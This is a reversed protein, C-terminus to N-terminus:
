MKVFRVKKHIGNGTIELFYIGPAVSSVPVAVRNKGAVTNVTLKQKREGHLDLLYISVDTSTETTFELNLTNTAPNPSAAIKVKDETAAAAVRVTDCFQQECGAAGRATLCVDYNGAAPFVHVPNASTNFATGDGFNWSYALTNTTASSFHIEGNTNVYTFSVTVNCTDPTVPMSVTIYDCYEAVCGAADTVKLCVDYTGSTSFTHVPAATGAATTGDGFSWNYTLPTKGGAINVNLEVSLSDSKRTYTYGANLNCVVPAAITISDSYNASCGKDDRINLTIWYGGPQSYVHVPNKVSDVTGDGFRWSYYVSGTLGTVTTNFRTTMSDITETFSTKLKCVDPPVSGTITVTDCVMTKCGYWDEVTLCVNYKGKQSYVHTPNALESINSGDGFNWTYFANGMYGRAVSTFVATTSDVASSYRVEIGCAEPDAVKLTDCYTATCGREDKVTMCVNYIGPKEYTHVLHIVSDLVTGDGYDWRCSVIKGNADKVDGIFDISMWDQWITYTPKLKCVVTYNVHVTDTYKATCGNKDTVTLTVHYTGANYYYHYPNSGKGAITSDGFDWSYTPTEAGNQKATFTIRPVNVSDQVATFSTSLNCSPKDAVETNLTVFGNRGGLADKAVSGGMVLGLGPVNRIFVINNVENVKGAMKEERIVAGTSANVLLYSPQQNTLKSDRTLLAVGLMNNEESLAMEYATTTGSHPYGSRWILDGTKGNVQVFVISDPYYISGIINGDSKEVADTFAGSKHSEVYQWIPPGVMGSLKAICPFKWYSNYKEGYVIAAKADTKSRLAGNNNGDTVLARGNSKHTRKSVGVVVAKKYNYPSSYVFISDSTVLVRKEKNLTQNGAFVIGTGGVWDDYNYSFGDLSWDDLHHYGGSQLIYFGSTTDPVIQHYDGDNKFGANHRWLESGSSDLLLGLNIGTSSSLSFTAVPPLTSTQGLVLVRESSDVALGSPMFYSTPTTLKKRWIFRQPTAYKELFVDTGEQKLVYYKDHFVQLDVTTSPYQYEKNAFIKRSIKGNQADELTVLNVHTNTRLLDTVPNALLGTVKGNMWFITGKGYYMENDTIRYNAQPFTDKPVPTDFIQKGDVGAIKKFRYQASDRQAGLLYVDGKDDITMSTASFYGSSGVGQDSIYGNWYVQGTKKNIKTLRTNIDDNIINNYWSVYLTDGLIQWNSLYFEGDYISGLKVAWKLEGTTDSMCNMYNEGFAYNYGDKQFGAFVLSSGTGIWVNSNDKRDKKVISWANSDDHSCYYAYDKDFWLPTEQGYGMLGTSFTRPAAVEGTVTSISYGSIPSAGGVRYYLILSDTGKMEHYLVGDTPLAVRDKRFLTKGTLKDVKVLFPYFGNVGVGFVADATVVANNIRSEMNYLSDKVTSWAISGDPALKYIVPQALYFKGPGRGWWYLNGDDLQSGALNNTVRTTTDSFFGLKLQASLLSPCILLYALLIRSLRKPSM